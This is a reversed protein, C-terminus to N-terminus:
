FAKLIHDDSEDTTRNNSITCKCFIENTGIAYSGGSPCTPQRGGALHPLIEKWTVESKTIGSAATAKRKALEIRRLNERCTAAKSRAVRPSEAPGPPGLGATANQVEYRARSRWYGWDLIGLAFAAALGGVVLVILGFMGKSM